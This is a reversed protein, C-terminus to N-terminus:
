GNAILIKIENLRFKQVDNPNGKTLIDNILNRGSGWFPSTFDEYCIQAWQFLKQRQSMIQSRNYLSDVHYFLSDLNNPNDIWANLGKTALCSTALKSLSLVALSDKSSLALKLSEFKDEDKFDNRYSDVQAAIDSVFMESYIATLFNMFRNGLFILVGVLLLAFVPNSILDLFFATVKKLM